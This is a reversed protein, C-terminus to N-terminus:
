RYVGNSAISSYGFLMKPSSKPLIINEKNSMRHMANIYESKSFCDTGLPFAARYEDRNKPQLGITTVTLVRPFASDNTHKRVRIVMQSSDVLLRLKVAINAPKPIWVFINGISYIGVIRTKIPNNGLWDL